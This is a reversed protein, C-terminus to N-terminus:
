KKIKQENFLKFNGTNCVKKMNEICKTALICCILLWNKQTIIIRAITIKTKNCAEQESVIAKNNTIILLDIDSKETGSIKNNNWM